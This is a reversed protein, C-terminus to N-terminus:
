KGGNKAQASAGAGYLLAAGGSSCGGWDMYTNPVGGVVVTESIVYSSAVRTSSAFSAIIVWVCTTVDLKIRLRTQNIGASSFDSSFEASVNGYPSVRASFQPGRNTFVPGGLVTGVPIRMTSTALKQLRDQCEAIIDHKLLNTAYSDTRIATINGADDKELTVLDSFSMKDRQLVAGVADNMANVADVKAQNGAISQMVPLLMTNFLWFLLLLVTLILLVWMLPGFRRRRRYRRVM